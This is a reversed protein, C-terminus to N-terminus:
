RYLTKNKAFIERLRDYQPDAALSHKLAAHHRCHQCSSDTKKSEERSWSCSLPLPPMRMPSKLNPKSNAFRMHSRSLLRCRYSPVPGLPRPSTNGSPRGLPGSHWAMARLNACGPEGRTVFLREPFVRMSWSTRTSFYLAIQRRLWLHRRPPFDYGSDALRGELIPLSDIAAHTRRAPSEQLPKLVVSDGECEAKVRTRPTAQVLEAPVLIEGADNVEVIM